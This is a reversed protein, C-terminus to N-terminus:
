WHRHVVFMAHAAATLVSINYIEFSDFRPMHVERPVIDRCLLRPPDLAALGHPAVPGPSM